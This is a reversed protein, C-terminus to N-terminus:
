LTFLQPTDMIEIPTGNGLALNVAERDAVIYFAYRKIFGFDKVEWSISSVVIEDVYISMNCIVCGRKLYDFHEGTIM